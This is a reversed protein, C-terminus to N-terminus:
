GTVLRVVIALIIVFVVVGIIGGAVAQLPTMSGVDEQWNKRRRVGFFSWFVASAIQIFGAKRPEDPDPPPQERRSM